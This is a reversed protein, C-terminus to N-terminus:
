CQATYEYIEIYKLIVNENIVEVRYLSQSQIQEIHEFAAGFEETFQEDIYELYVYTFSSKLIELWENCSINKTWIDGDYYPTGISWSGNVRIPTMEYEAVYKQYGTSNQFIYYINDTKYNLPLLSIRSITIESRQGMSPTALLDLVPNFNFFFLLISLYVATKKIPKGRKQPKDNENEYYVFICSFLCIVALLYTNIYRSFSALRIAEYESFTFTYLIALSATYMVGGILLGLLCSRLKNGFLEKSKSRWFLVVVTILLAWQSYTFSTNGVPISNSFFAIIFNKITEYRYPDSERKLLEIIASTNINSVTRWAFVTDTFHRYISWSYNSIVPVFFATASIRVSKSALMNNIRYKFTKNGIQRNAKAFNRTRIILDFTIILAGIIALGFGSAKVLSLVFLALTLNIFFSINFSKETFYVFLIYAVLIGLIADVYIENYFGSYLYIPIIFIIIMIFPVMKINKWGINKFVPLVLSFYLINMSRFFNPEIYGYIKMWFYQFLATAPPYGPFMTTADPHNGFADFIYMNKVARGWHSFEDWEILMRGRHVYCVFAFFFCFVAFGPTFVNNLFFEKKIFGKILGWMCFGLAGISAAVVVYVGISMIGALGFLYLTVIMAFCTISITQEFRYKMLYALTASIFFLIFFMNILYM